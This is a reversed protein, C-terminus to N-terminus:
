QNFKTIQIVRKKGAARLAYGHGKMIRAMAEFAMGVNQPTTGIKEAVHSMGVETPPVLLGTRLKDLLFGSGLGAWDTLRKSTM